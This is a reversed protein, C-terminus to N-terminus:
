FSILSAWVASYFTYIFLKFHQHYLAIPYFTYDWWWPPYFSLLVSLHSLSRPRRLTLTYIINQLCRALTFHLAPMICLVSVLVLIDTLLFPSSLFYSCRVFTLAAGKTKKEGGLEFSHLSWGNAEQLIPLSILVYQKCRKLVMQMKYKCM